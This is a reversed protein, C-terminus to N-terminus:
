PEKRAALAAMDDAWRKFRRQATARQEANALNAIESTLAQSQKLYTAAYAQYEPARGNELETLLTALRQEADARPVSKDIVGQLVAVFANQRRMRDDLVLRPNMPLADTLAKIRELQVDEYRGYWREANELVREYRKERQKEPTAEITEKTYEANNRALKKKLAAINEPTLRTALDAIEAAVRTGMVKWHRRGENTLWVVDDPAVKGAARTRVELLFRAYEAMQTTRNWERVALIREKLLTEQEGDLDLYNDAMLTLATPGMSYAFDITSCGSCLAAFMLMSAAFSRKTAVIADANRRLRM